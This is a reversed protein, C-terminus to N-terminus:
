VLRPPKTLSYSPGDPCSDSETSFRELAVPCLAQDKLFSAINLPLDTGVFVVHSHSHHDGDHGCDGSDGHPSSAGDHDHSHHENESHQHGHEADVGHSHETEMVVGSGMLDGLSIAVLLLSYTLIRLLTM